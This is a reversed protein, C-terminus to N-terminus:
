RVARLHITMGLLGPFRRELRRYLDSVGFSTPRRTAHDLFCGGHAGAEVHAFGARRLMREATDLNFFRIHPDRWPMEMGLHDGAPNWVGSVADARMRWYAGNPMSAVLRGGPRLVRRIEAAALDPRFLHELVEICIALDFSEDEFPLQGADDIVRADLDQERALAVASESVDVGVYSAAARAVWPAYTRGAGCGVDLCRSDPDVNARLLSELEPALPYEPVVEGGWYQEYYTSADRARVGALLSVAHFFPSRGREQPTPM